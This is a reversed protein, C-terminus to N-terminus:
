FGPVIDDSALMVVESLTPHPPLAQTLHTIGYDPNGVASISQLLEAAHIGIIHAGLLKGSIRDTIIKTLGEPEGMAIAKGNNTFPVRKVKFDYGQAEAEQETIGIRAIQPTSNTCVGVSTIDVPKLQCEGAIHEACLKGEHIANNARNASNAIDGIAYVGPNHTEGWEDTKIKNYEIIATTNELGLDEINNLRGIAPFIKETMVQHIGGKSEINVLLGNEVEITSHVTSDTWIDIGRDDLQMHALNSMDIDEDALITQRQEVVSVKVGLAQYLSAYEIGTSGAGIILLSTPLAEPIIADQYGWLYQQKIDTNAWCKERTGTALIINRSKLVIDERNNMKVYVRQEGKLLGKGEYYTVGNNKLAQKITNRQQRIVELTRGIVKHFNFSYGSTLFGFEDARNFQSVINSAYLLPKSPLAGQNLCTGGLKEMEILAVSLGLESARLAASYGGPGGGIVTVDFCEEKPLEDMIANGM